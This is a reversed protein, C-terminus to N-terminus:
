LAPVCITYALCDGAASAATGPALGTRRSGGGARGRVAEAKSQVNDLMVRAQEPFTSSLQEWAQCPPLSLPLSLPPFPSGPHSSHGLPGYPTMFSAHDRDVDLVADRQVDGHTGEQSLSSVHKSIVFVRVVTVSVVTEPSSVDTFFALDGFLESPGLIGAARM